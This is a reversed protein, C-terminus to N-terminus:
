TFTQVVHLIERVDHYKVHCPLSSAWDLNTKTHTKSLTPISSIHPFYFLSATKHGSNESRYPHAQLGRKSCLFRFVMKMLLRCCCCSSSHQTFHITHPSPMEHKWTVVCQLTQQFFLWRSHLFARGCIKTETLVPFTALALALSETGLSTM